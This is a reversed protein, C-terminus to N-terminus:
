SLLDFFVVECSLGLLCFRLTRHKGGLILCRISFDCPTGVGQLLWWWRCPWGLTLWSELSEFDGVPHAVEQWGEDEPKERDEHGDDHGVRVPGRAVPPPGNLVKPDDEEEHNEHQRGDTQGRGPVEQVGDHKPHLQHVARVVGELPVGDEQRVVAGEEYTRRVDSGRQLEHVGSEVESIKSMRSTM